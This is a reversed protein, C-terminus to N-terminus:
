KTPLRKQKLTSDKLAFHEPLLSPIMSTAGEGSHLCPFTTSQCAPFRIRLYEQGYTEHLFRFVRYADWVEGAAAPFPGSSHLQWIRLVLYDQFQVMNEQVQHEEIPRAAMRVQVTDQTHRAIYNPLARPMRDARLLPYDQYAKEPPGRYSRNYEAHPRLCLTDKYYKSLPLARNCGPMKLECTSVM